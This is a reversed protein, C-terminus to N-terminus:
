EDTSRTYEGEIVRGGGQPQSRRVGAIVQIRPMFSRLLARRSVPWLCLFALADTFFGPTLLLVGGLLLAVGELLEFAPLDDRDLSVRARRLIALGQSRLLMIGVIGILVLLAITPWAGIADGVIIFLYIEVLPVGLFLAALVLRSKM